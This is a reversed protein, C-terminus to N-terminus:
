PLDVRAGEGNETKGDVRMLQQPRAMEARSFGRIGLAVDLGRAVLLSGHVASLRDAHQAVGHLASAYHDKARLHTEISVADVSYGLHELRRVHHREIRSADLRDFYDVGLETYPQGTRLVHYAANLISHAVAIAAKTGAAADPSEISSRTSTAPRPSSARGPSRM